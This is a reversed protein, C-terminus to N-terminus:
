SRHTTLSCSSPGGSTVQGCQSDITHGWARGTAIWVHRDKVVVLMLLGRSDGAAGVGWENFLGEAYAQTTLGAAGYDALSNITVVVIPASQRDLSAAAVARIPGRDTESIVGAEDLVFERQGVRAPYRVQAAESGVFSAVVLLVSVWWCRQTILNM